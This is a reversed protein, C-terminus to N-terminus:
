TTLELMRQCALLQEIMKTEDFMGHGDMMFPEDLLAFCASKGGGRASDPYCVRKGMGAAVSSLDAFAAKVRDGPVRVGNPAMLRFTLAPTRGPVAVVQVYNYWAEPLAQWGLTFAIFDAKHVYDYGPQTGNLVELGAMHDFCGYWQDAAWEAIPLRLYRQYAAFESLRLDCWSHFIESRPKIRDLNGIFAVIDGLYLRLHEDRTRPELSSKFYVTLVQDRDTLAYMKMLEDLYGNIQDRHESTFTKDEILIFRKAGSASTLIVLVDIHKEQLRVEVAHYEPTPQGKKEFLWAIFARGVVHMGSPHGKFSLDAWECLWALFADQSLESQAHHFINPGTTM